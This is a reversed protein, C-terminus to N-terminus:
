AYIEEYLFHFSTDCKLIFNSEYLSFHMFLLLILHMFVCKNEM